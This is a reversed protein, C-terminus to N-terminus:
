CRGDPSDAACCPAQPWLEDGWLMIRDEVTLREMWM